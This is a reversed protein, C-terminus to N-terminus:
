ENSKAPYNNLLCTRLKDYDLLSSWTEHKFIVAATKFVEQTFKLVSSHVSMLDASSTGNEPFVNVKKHKKASM